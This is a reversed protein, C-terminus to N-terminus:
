RASLLLGRRRRRLHPGAYVGQVRIVAASGFGSVAIFPGGRFFGMLRNKLSVFCGQRGRALSFSGEFGLGLQDFLGPDGFELGSGADLGLGLGLGVSSEKFVEV